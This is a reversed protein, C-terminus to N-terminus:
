AKKVSKSRGSVVETIEGRAAWNRRPVETRSKLDLGMFRGGITKLSLGDFRGRTAYEMHTGRLEVHTVETRL